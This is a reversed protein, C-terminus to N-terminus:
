MKGSYSVTPAKVTKNVAIYLGMLKVWVMHGLFIFGKILRESEFVNLAFHLVKRDVVLRDPFM